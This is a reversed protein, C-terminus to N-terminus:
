RLALTHLSHLVITLLRVHGLTGICHGLLATWLACHFPAPMNTSRDTARLASSPLVNFHRMSWFEPLRDGFVNDDLLAKDMDPCGFHLRAERVVNPTIISFEPGVTGEVEPVREAEPLTQIVDELTNASFFTEFLFQNFGQM